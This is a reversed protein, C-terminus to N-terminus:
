EQEESERAKILAIIAVPLVALKRGIFRVVAYFLFRVVVYLLLSPLIIIWMAGILAYDEEDIIHKTDWAKCCIFIVYGIIAYLILAIIMDLMIWKM